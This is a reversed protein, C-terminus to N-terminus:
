NVIAVAACECSFIKEYIICQENRPNARADCDCNFVSEYVIYVTNMERDCCRLTM